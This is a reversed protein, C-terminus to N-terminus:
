WRWHYPVPENKQWHQRMEKLTRYVRTVEEPTNAVGDPQYQQSLPPQRQTLVAYTEPRRFKLHREKHDQIGSYLYEWFYADAMTANVVDVDAWVINPDDDGADALIEAKPSAIRSNRSCSSIFFVQNDMARTRMHYDELIAASPQCIIQAGNMACCAASEPWMQDYCILMSIWGIETEFAPFTDGPTVQWLEYQPMHVKRYRGVLDGSPGYLDAVNYIRRGERAFYCAVIFLSNTKAAKEFRDRILPTQKDVANQFISRDDLYQMCPSLRTFDETIVVLKCQASAARFFLGEYWDIRREISVYLDALSFDDRFPDTSLDDCTPVHRSQIAAMRIRHEAATPARRNVHVEPNNHLLTSGITSGLLALKVFSRRNYLSDM